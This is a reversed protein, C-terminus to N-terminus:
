LCGPNPRTIPEFQTGIGRHVTTRFTLVRCVYSISLKPCRFTGLDSLLGLETPVTGIFINGNLKLRRLGELQGLESPIRGEIGNSELQLSTLSSMVFVENPLRGAINNQNLSISDVNGQGDCGVGFWACENTNTQWFENNTWASGQLSLFMTMLYWRQVLVSDSMLEVDDDNNVMWDLARYQPTEPNVLAMSSQPTVQLLRAVTAFFLSETTTPSPTLVPTRTPPTTPSSSPNTTPSSSPDPTPISFPEPTTPYPTPISSPYPTPDTTPISSPDPTPNTTPISSPDLTPSPTPPSTPFPTIGPAPMRTPNQSPTLTPTRSPIPTTPFPSPFSSPWQTPSKSITPQLEGSPINSPSLTPENTPTWAPPFTVPSLTPSGALPNSDSSSDDDNQRVILFLMAVAAAVSLLLVVLALKLYILRNRRGDDDDDDDAAGQNRKLKRSSGGSVYIFGPPTTARGQDDDEPSSPKRYWRGNSPKVASPNSLTSAMESPENHVAWNAGGFGYSDEQSLARPRNDEVDIEPPEHQQRAYTPPVNPSDRKESRLTLPGKGQTDSDIGSSPQESDGNAPPIDSSDGIESSLTLPGKGEVDSVLESSPQESDAQEPPAQAPKNRNHNGSKDFGYSDSMHSSQSKDVGAYNAAFATNPVRGMNHGMKVFGYSDSMRSRTSVSPSSMSPPGQPLKSSDGSPSGVSDKRNRTGEESSQPIPPNTTGRFGYSDSTGSKQSDAAAVSEGYGYSDSTSSRQSHEPATSNGYGYSDSTGTRESGYIESSQSLMDNWQARSSVSPQSGESFDAASMNATPDTTSKVFGYSDSMGSRKSNEEVDGMRDPSDHASRRKGTRPLSPQSQTDPMGGLRMRRDGADPSQPGWSLGNGIGDNQPLSTGASSPEMFDALTSDGMISDDYDDGNGIRGARQKNMMSKFYAKEPDDSWILASDYGSTYGDSEDTESYAAM